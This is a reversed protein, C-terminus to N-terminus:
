ASLGTSPQRTKARDGFWWVTATTAIFLVTGVADIKLSAENAMFVAMGIAATLSLATITPRVMARVDNVWRSTGSISADHELSTKLGQYSGEASAIALEHETEMQSTQRQEEILKLEHQNQIVKDKRAERREWIAMFRDTLSGFLGLIGGGAVSGIIEEM